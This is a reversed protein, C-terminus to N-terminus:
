LPETARFVAAVDDYRGKLGRLDRWEMALGLADALVGMERRVYDAYVDHEPFIDEIVYTGDEALLPGFLVLSALQDALGNSADDVILDYPGLAFDLCEASTADGEFYSLRDGRFKVHELTLDVGQCEALPLYERVAALFAGSCTGLELVKCAGKSRLAELLPDYVEGYSHITMKDTGSRNDVAGYKRLVDSFM